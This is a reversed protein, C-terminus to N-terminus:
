KIDKPDYTNINDNTHADVIPADVIYSLISWYLRTIDFDNLCYGIIVINAIMWDLLIM